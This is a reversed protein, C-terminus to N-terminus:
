VTDFSHLHVCERLADVSYRQRSQWAIRLPGVRRLAPKCLLCLGLCFCDYPNASETSGFAAAVRGECGGGGGDARHQPAPSSKSIVSYSTNLNSGLSEVPDGDSVVVEAGDSDSEEGATAREGIGGGVRGEGGM